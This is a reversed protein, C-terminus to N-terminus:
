FNPRARLHKASSLDINDSLSQTFYLSKYIVDQSEVSDSLGTVM